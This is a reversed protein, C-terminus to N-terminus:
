QKRGRRGNGGGEGSGVRLIGCPRWKCVVSRAVGGELWEFGDAFSKVGLQDGREALMKLRFVQDEDGVARKVEKGEMGEFIAVGIEAVSVGNGIGRAGGDKGEALFFQGAFHGGRQDHADGVLAGGLDQIFDLGYGRDKWVRFEEEAVLGGGFDELALPECLARRWM